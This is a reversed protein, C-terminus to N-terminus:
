IGLVEKLNELPVVKGGMHEIESFVKEEAEKGGISRVAEPVLITDFGWDLSALASARVSPQSDIKIGKSLM